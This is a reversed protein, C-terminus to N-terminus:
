LKTTGVYHSLDQLLDTGILDVGAQVEAAWMHSNDPAGWFRLKRGKAHISAVLRSLKRKQEDPFVGNGNWDFLDSWRLAYWSWGDRTPPDEDHYVLSDRGAYRVPFLRAYEVKLRNGTMIATVPGHVDGSPGFRTLMPYKELTKHLVDLLDPNDDKLDLWLTMTRGDGYM